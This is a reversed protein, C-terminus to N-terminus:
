WESKLHHCGVTALTVAVENFFQSKKFKDGTDGSDGSKKLLASIEAALGEFKHM